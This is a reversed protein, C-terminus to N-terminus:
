KENRVKFGSLYYQLSIYDTPYPWLRHSSKKNKKKEWCIRCRRCQCVQKVGFEELCLSEDYLHYDCVILRRGDPLKVLYKSEM